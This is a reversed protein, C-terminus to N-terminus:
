VKYKIVGNNSKITPQPKQRISSLFQEFSEAQFVRFPYDGDVAYRHQTLILVYPFVPARDKPQWPENQIIGSHYLDEYRQLKERMVKESYLTKQVEIFFPTKLAICFGDPEVTGKAGFKPEVNFVMLEGLRLIDKYTEVIALYHGIKASNEKMNIDPGFYVYPQFATSRKIRGDRYLRNLVNNASNSPRKLGKFHIDAIDTLSMVRFRNLDNIIAKDRKSLM